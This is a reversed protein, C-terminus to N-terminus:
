VTELSTALLPSAINCISRDTISDGYGGGLEQILGVHFYTVHFHSVGQGLTQGPFVYRALIIKTVALHFCEVEKWLDM